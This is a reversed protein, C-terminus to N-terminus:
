VGMPVALPVQGELLEPKLKDVQHIPQQLRQFLVRVELMKHEITLGNDKVIIQFHARFLFRNKAL